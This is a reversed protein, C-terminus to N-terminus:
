KLAKNPTFKLESHAVRTPHWVKTGVKTKGGAALFEHREPDSHARLQKDWSSLAPTYFGWTNGHPIVLNPYGWEDLRRFLETPTYASEQCDDPLDREAVDWPCTALEDRDQLFRAFDHYAQRNGGPAGAILMLRMFANYPNNGGPFLQERSSIPRRPVAADSTDRLVINKHGYHDEPTQGIQTWEWGLYTVMDPNQADGAAQNCARVMNRTESWQYPTLGEAHDNISWFDLASCYRAYDCADAPPHAGEGQYMPLSIAYADFSYTTHVHLDGFLISKDAPAAPVAGRQVSSVTGGDQVTGWYGRSGLFAVIGLPVILVATLTLWKRM